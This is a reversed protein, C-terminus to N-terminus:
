KSMARVGSLQTIEARKRVFRPARICPQPAPITSHIPLVAHKARKSEFALGEAILDNCVNTVPRKRHFSRQRLTDGVRLEASAKLLDDDM